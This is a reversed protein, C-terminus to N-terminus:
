DKRRGLADVQEHLATLLDLSLANRKEPRTLTLRAVRDKVELLALDAVIGAGERGCRASASASRTAESWRWRRRWRGRWGPMMWRAKWSTSGRRRRRSRRRRSRRWGCRRWRRA